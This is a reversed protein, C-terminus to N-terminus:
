NEPNGPEFVITNEQGDIPKDHVNELLIKEPIENPFADCGGDIRRYHKCKLCILNNTEM